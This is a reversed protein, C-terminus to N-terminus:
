HFATLSKPLLVGGDLQYHKDCLSALRLNHTVVIMSVQKDKVCSLLLNHIEESHFHDLDGSPEDALLIKPDNLLARAIAARQKEGGSLVKAPFHTRKELGVKVLLNLAKEYLLSSKSTDKRAIRAPMLINEILTFDELLNYSQFVFGLYQNRIKEESAHPQNMITVSGSDAKELTGLIHLLTTKGEGSAGTIAISTNEALDLSIGSLITTKEPTFYSKHLDKASLVIKKM